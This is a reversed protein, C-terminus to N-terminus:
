SRGCVLVVYVVHLLDISPCCNARWWVLNKLDRGLTVSCSAAHTQNSPANQRVALSSLSFSIASLTRFRLFFLKSKRDRNIPSGFFFDRDISSKLNPSIAIIAIKSKRNRFIGPAFFTRFDLRNWMSRQTSPQLSM